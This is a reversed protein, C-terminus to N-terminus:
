LRTPRQPRSLHAKTWAVDEEVNRKTTAVSVPSTLRKRALLGAIAAGVLLLLTVILAAAWGPLFLALVFGLTILLGQFGLWGFVAAAALLGAGVAKERIGETLEAKALALEAKVLASADEAVARAAAAPGITTRRSFLEQLRARREELRVRQQELIATSSTSGLSLRRAGTPEAM